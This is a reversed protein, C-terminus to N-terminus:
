EKAAFGHAPVFSGSRTRGKLGVLSEESVRIQQVLPLCGGCGTGALDGKCCGGGSRVAERIERDNVGHCHCVRM